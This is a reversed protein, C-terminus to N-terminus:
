YLFEIFIIMSRFTFHLCKLCKSSFVLPFGQSIETNLLTRLSLVLLKTQFLLFNILQDKGINLWKARWVVSYLAHLSFGRLQLFYKCTVDSCLVASGQAGRTHVAAAWESATNGPFVHGETCTNERGASKQVFMKKELERTSTDM